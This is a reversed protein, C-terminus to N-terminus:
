LNCIGSATCGDADSLKYHALESFQSQGKMRLRCLGMNDIIFEIPHHRLVADAVCLRDESVHGKIKKMLTVHFATTCKGDKMSEPKIEKQLDALLDYLAQNFEPSTAVVVANDKQNSLLCVKDLRVKVPAHRQAVRAIADNLNPKEEPQVDGLYLLTSHFTYEKQCHVLSSYGESLNERAADRLVDLFQYHQEPLIYGIFLNM